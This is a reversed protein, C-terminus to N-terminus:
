GLKAQFARLSAIVAKANGNRAALGDQVESTVQRLKAVEAKPWTTVTVGETKMKELAAADARALDAKLATSMARAEATILAKMDDPLASWKPTAVSIDTTPMSHSADISFKAARYLGVDQNLAPSAWDTADIVGSQLANFVEGGPLNIVAAGSKGIIESILGPPVRIKIGKLDEFGALNRRSSIQESAWFVPAVMAMGFKAYQARAVDEGGGEALWRDRSAVDDFSAGTDGLVTFGPDRSAFYSAASYHGDLIGAQVASLTETVAVVGGGPLAQIRLKSGSKSTVREAFAEFATQPITGAPLFGQMKLTVGQAHSARSVFPLALTALALRRSLLM